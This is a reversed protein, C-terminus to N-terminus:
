GFSSGTPSGQEGKLRNNEDRLHQNEQRLQAIEESCSELLNLLQILVQKHESASLNDIDQNLSDLASRLQLLTM